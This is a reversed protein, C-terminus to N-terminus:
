RFRDVTLAIQLALSAVAAGSDAFVKGYILGSLTSADTNDYPWLARDTFSAVTTVGGSITSYLSNDRASNSYFLLGIKDLSNSKMLLDRAIGSKGVDMTFLHVSTPNVIICNVVTIPEPLAQRPSFQLAGGNVGVGIKRDAASYSGVVLGPTVASVFYDRGPVFATYLSQVIGFQLFNGYAGSAPATLAIVHPKISSSNPDFPWYFGGSDIWCIYGSNIAVGAQGTNANIYAALPDPIAPVDRWNFYIGGGDLGIGIKRAMADPTSVILGPTTASVYYDKGPVFATYLSRVIGNLLFLASDGSAPATFALASPKITTSNPNFPMFFGGSSMWCVYGSNIAIGARATTHYGRELIGFNANEDSDWDAQGSTLLALQNDTTQTM